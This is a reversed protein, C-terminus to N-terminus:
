CERKLWGKLSTVGVHDIPIEKTERVHDKLWSWANIITFSDPKSHDRILSKAIRIRCLERGENKNAIRNFAVFKQKGSQQITEPHNPRGIKKSAKKSIRHKKSNLNFWCKKSDRSRTSYDLRNQRENIMMCAIIMWSNNIGFNKRGVDYSKKM